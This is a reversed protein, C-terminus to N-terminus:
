CRLLETLSVYLIPSKCRCKKAAGLWAMGFTIQTEMALKVVALRVRISYRWLLAFTLRAEPRLSM